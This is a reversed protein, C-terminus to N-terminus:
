FEHGLHILVSSGCVNEGTGSFAFCETKELNTGFYSAGVDLWEYFTKEIGANWYNYDPTGFATNRQLYVRALKGTLSVGYKLQLEAKVHPSLFTGAVNFYNDAYGLGVHATLGNYRYGIKGHAEWYDYDVDGTSPYVYYTFDVDWLFNNKESAWGFFADFEVSTNTLNDVILNSAWLGAYLGFPVKYGLEGQIAPKNDTASLGDTIYNSLFHLSGYFEGSIDNAELSEDYASQHCHCEACSATSFLLASVMGTTLIGNILKAM